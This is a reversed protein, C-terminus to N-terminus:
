IWDFDLTRENKGTCYAVILLLLVGAILGSERLAYPIGIIGAGVISNVLNSSAGVIGSLRKPRSVNSIQRRPAAQQGDGGTGSGDIEVTGMGLTDNVADTMALFDCFIYSSTIKSSEEIHFSAAEVFGFRRTVFTVFTV